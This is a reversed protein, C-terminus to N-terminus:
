VREMLRRSKSSLSARALILLIVSVLLRSMVSRFGNTVLVKLPDVLRMDKMLSKSVSVIALFRHSLNNNTLVALVFSTLM